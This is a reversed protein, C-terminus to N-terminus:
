RSTVFVEIRRNQNRGEETDNTAIPETQGKGSAEVRDAAIGNQGLWNKVSMARQESLTMNSDANGTNDTHGVVRIKTAPYAMMIEALNRLEEESGETFNTSGSKFDVQDFSIAKTLDSNPRSLRNALKATFSGAAAQIEKGGPLEFSRFAEAVKDAADAAADGVTEAANGVADGVDKAGTEIKDVGEKLTEGGKGRGLFWLLALAALALVLWPLIKGFGSKGAETASKVAGTAADKTAGIAGTAAAATAGVAQASKDAVDKTTDVIANTRDAILNKAGSLMGGLGLLDGFGSPMASAIHDKQGMLLNKLGLADLAKDKVYKGVLSMVLPGAMKLLSNTSGIKMGSKGAILDVLSGLKDGVLYKLIGSGSALLGSTKDGGSLLDGINELMGGDFNGGSIFDMLGSAGDDDSAKGMMSGMLSPLIAGMASGTADSSEGLISSAQNVLVDGVTDKFMDLLNVSM